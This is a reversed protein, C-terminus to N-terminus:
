CCRAPSRGDKASRGIGDCYERDWCGIPAPGLSDGVASPLMLDAPDFQADYVLRNCILVFIFSLFHFGGLTAREGRRQKRIRRGGRRRMNICKGM